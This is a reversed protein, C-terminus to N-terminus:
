PLELAPPIVLPALDRGQMSTFDARLQAADLRVDRILEDAFGAERGALLPAIVDVGPRREETVTQGHARALVGGLLTALALLAPRDAAALAALDEHDLGRQYAERDRVKLSLGGVQAAGLLADADPRAHLRRQTDISRVAPTAWEASALRPVGRLILGERTEKLEILRDDEPAPTPGALVVDYRYAAYSAVGAGVRRARLTVAGLADGAPVQARWQAVARDLWVATEADVRELRDEIVGDPGVPELDGLALARVGGAIPAVEELAERADGKRLARALEDDLLPHAGVTVPGLRAGTALQAIAAAYGTAVARALDAALADDDPACAIVLGTALRRVDLTFPGYGTADFDNWDILQQGDAARFTGLNEPHPDGVLLVRSAAPSGFGTPAREGGADTVDRWYLSATGRLWAYPDRQMKRLKLGVLAPDRRAWVLNDESLAHLIRGERDDGPSGACAALCLILPCRRM